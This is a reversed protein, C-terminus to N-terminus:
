ENQNVIKLIEKSIDNEVKAIIINKKDLIVSISNKVMYNNMIQNLNNFFINLEKNKAEEFSKITKKKILNYDNVKKKLEMIKSNYEDASLINKLKKIDNKEKELKEEELKFKEMNKKNINKLDNLIKKGTSSEALIFNLDIFAIKDNSIANSTSILSIIFILILVFIRM